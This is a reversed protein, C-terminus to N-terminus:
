LSYCYNSMECFRIIGFFVIIEMKSLDIKLLIFLSFDDSIDFLFCLFVWM